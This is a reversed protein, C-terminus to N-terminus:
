RTAPKPDEHRPRVLLVSITILWLVYVPISLPGIVATLILLVGAVTTARSVTPSWLDARVTARALGLLALGTAATGAAVALHGAEGFAQYVPLSLGHADAPAAATNLSAGAWTAAQGAIAAITFLDRGPGDPMLRRIGAVFLLWALGTALMLLWTLAQWRGNDALFAELQARTTLDQKPAVLVAAVFTVLTAAGAAGTMRRASSSPLPQRHQTTAVPHTSM